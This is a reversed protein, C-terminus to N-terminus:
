GNERDTGTCTSCLRIVTKFYSVIAPDRSDKRIRYQCCAKELLNRVTNGSEEPVLVLIHSANGTEFSKQAAIM